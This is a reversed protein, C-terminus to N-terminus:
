KHKKPRGAKRPRLSCGLRAEMKNLFREEGIALGRQTMQRLWKVMEDDPDSVYEEWEAGSMSLSKALPIIGTEKGVHTKASSWVYNWAQRVMKARVPNREVYRIGRYVHADDMLCSYFRGQWLHGQTKRKMNIYQAYRMHATNFLRALGDETKPILIFHVHNTMLCYALVEVQYKAAYQKFWYSYTRHDQEEEFVAQQYNGRQIVHHAVGPIVIRAQRPM